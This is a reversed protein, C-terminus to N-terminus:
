LRSLLDSVAYSYGRHGLGCIIGVCAQSIYSKHRFQERRFINSLHVEIAPLKAGLLADMIAISTHSLAGPNIVIGFSDDLSQIFDVLAGEHNSQFFVLKAKGEFEIKLENEIDSLTKHGYIEPQRKGLMNLNPGNIIAINKM